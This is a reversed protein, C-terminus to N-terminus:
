QFSFLHVSITGSDFSFNSSCHKLLHKCRVTISQKYFHYTTHIQQQSTIRLELLAWLNVM